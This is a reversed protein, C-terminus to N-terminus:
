NTVAGSVEVPVPNTVIDLVPSTKQVYACLEDIEEQPADTKVRYNVRIGKYGPRVEESLGLFARLDLDGELDMELDEIEIGRAAANYVLGVALCSALGHLVTEVANPAANSGLLVPPEDGELVLPRDRSRDQGAGHFEDIETRSRAGDIWETHARFEFHALEPQDKIAAITDMLQDVDVGNLTGTKVKSAM